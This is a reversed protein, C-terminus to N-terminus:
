EIHVAEAPIGFQASIGQRIAATDAIGYMRIYVGDIGATQGEEGVTLMVEADCEMGCASQVYERVSQELNSRFSSTIKENYLIAANEKTLADSTDASVIDDFDLQPIGTFSGVLTITVLLGIIFNVYKELASRPMLARLIFSLLIVCVVTITFSNLHETM